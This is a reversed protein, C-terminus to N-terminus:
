INATPTEVFDATDTSTYNFSIDKWLDLATQLPGCTKAADRLIQPGEAVYNRGENRAMVMSELAVRNATAGAQIGDPHGITGGGFQLVVDDGLYDLLQHMQGAHIGGSAVPVVKRLSAWNQAFFLGQPLNIDTDSELLTNYFGKIMLPDGELKGVVTGAHIHDVGAMRMWKCIVRFNMGHNKQRSYTSNGARHLHLIMDHKRAWIAMSQIATYGIVLDIMCIISGVEKSFEAREYMDEMTAATVNLYHGKIEGASASAKNVGEMSYLFRERWRMFPQSNINEDDKLFDLGGKLGEYVVRGYNKGSLGLKPKVTAGLFPRGFKDMREREVILGTAPGQFTKLYAVPMRMDELRLAKVAKFGFVNGIISATLNAISGEEFLDIDYAIYAFYQDAVNPVPDVRYAKARYLDCATLLDTWVVTWTATSSEGAIAASAEIPDVGPQPTIRFLALIDTEKIVYDADWYGMKAYPIVGSEYRESKIRTRSEVSQSM